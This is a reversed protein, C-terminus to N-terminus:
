KVDEVSETITLNIFDLFRSKRGHRILLTQSEREAEAFPGDYLKWNEFDVPVGDVTPTSGYEVSLVVGDLNTFTARPKGELSYNLPLAEVAEIFAELGEFDEEAAVQVIYGNKLYESVYSRSGASMETFNTSIWAGAGGKLLGTWDVERFKGPAMPHYAILSRGGRAFIWGSDRITLDELDRSFFTHILPFRSGEEIAYLAILSREHQFVQEFPSGSALKDPSDYDVKSRAILDTITDWDEGFYMTGEYPNSYPQVAFFTNSKGRANEEGWILSWTQQQIPQLLGGQSSGLIYDKHVFSTKYVPITSKGDYEFAEPGANRIRWRTRKLEKQVYAAKRDHAICYLIPPPNYGSMTVLTNTANRRYEGQGFFLWGHMPGMALVPQIIHRPYIRSHAGGYIGNLNEVAYDLLLYDMMMEGARQLEPDKAWGALLAMPRTYEGIYNPSDYEGQGYSTTIKVWDLIYEKAEAMNEASSKGNFWHEPGADPFLECALYLGTYYMLWHNETDGRYPFYDRWLRRIFAWDNPDLNAEGAHMVLAMPIMWFMNGSPNENVTRLRRKAWEVNTGLYLAAAVDYLSGRDGDTPHVYTALDEIVMQSRERYGKLIEADTLEREPPPTTAFLTFPLFALGSLIM